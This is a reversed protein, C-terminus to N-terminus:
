DTRPMMRFLLDKAVQNMDASLVDEPSLGFSVKTMTFANYLKDDVYVGARIYLTPRAAISRATFLMAGALAPGHAGVAAGAYTETVDVYASSITSSVLLSAVKLTKGALFTNGQAALERELRSVSTPSIVDDGLTREVTLGLRKDGTKKEIEDREDLLTFTPTVRTATPSVSTIQSPNSTCATLAVFTALTVARRFLNSSHKLM